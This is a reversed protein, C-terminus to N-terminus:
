NKLFWKVLYPRLEIKVEDIYDPSIKFDEDTVYAILENIYEYLNINEDVSIKKMAIFFPYIKEDNFIFYSDHIPYLIKPAVRTKKKIYSLLYSGIYGVWTSIFKQIELENNNLENIFNEKYFDSFLLDILIISREDFNLDYNSNEKVFGKLEHRYDLILDNLRELNEKKYINEKSFLMLNEEDGVYPKTVIMKIKDYLFYFNGDDIKM